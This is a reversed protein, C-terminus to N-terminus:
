PYIPTYAIPQKYSKNITTKEQDHVILIDDVHRKYVIVSKIEMFHKIIHTEFHKLFIESITGSIPSGM